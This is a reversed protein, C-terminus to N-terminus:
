TMCDWHMCTFLMFGIGRVMSPEIDTILRITHETGIDFTLERLSKGNQFPSSVGAYRMKSLTATYMFMKKSTAQSFSWHFFFVTFSSIKASM